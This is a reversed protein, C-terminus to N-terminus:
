EARGLGRRKSLVLGYSCPTEWNTALDNVRHLVRRTAVAGWGSEGMDDSDILGSIAGTQSWATVVTELGTEEQSAV